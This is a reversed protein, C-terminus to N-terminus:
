SDSSDYYGQDKQIFGIAHDKASNLSLMNFEKWPIWTGVDRDLRKYLEVHYYPVVLWREKNIEVRYKTLKIM